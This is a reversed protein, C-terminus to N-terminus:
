TGPMPSAIATPSEPATPLATPSPSETATPLAAATPSEIATPSAANTPTLAETTAESSESSASEPETPKPAGTVAKISEVTQNPEYTVVYTTLKHKTLMEAPTAVAEWMCITFIDAVTDFTIIATKTGAYRGKPDAQFVDVDKGDDKYSEIPRGLDAMVDYRPTGKEIKSVDTYDPRKHELYVSCGSALAVILFAAAGTRSWNRWKRNVLKNVSKPSNRRSVPPRM